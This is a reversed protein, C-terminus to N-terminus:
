SEAAARRPVSGISPVEAGRSATPRAAHRGRRAPGAPRAARAPRPGTGARRRHTSVPNASDRHRAPDTVSLLLALLLPVTLLLLNLTM